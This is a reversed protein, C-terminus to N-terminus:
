AHSVEKDHAETLKKINFHHDCIAEIYEDPLPIDFIHKLLKLAPEELGTAINLAMFNVIMAWDTANAPEKGELMVDKAADLMEQPSVLRGNEPM